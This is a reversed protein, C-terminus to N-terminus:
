KLLLYFNLGYLGPTVFVDNGSGHLTVDIGLTHVGPAVFTNVHFTGNGVANTTLSGVVHGQGSTVTDIFLYTTGPTLRM